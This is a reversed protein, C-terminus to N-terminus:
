GPRISRTRVPTPAWRDTSGPPPDPARCPSPSRGPRRGTWRTGTRKRISPSRLNGTRCHGRPLVDHVQAVPRLLTQRVPPNAAGPPRPEAQVPFSLPLDSYRVILPDYEKAERQFPIVGRRKFGCATVRGDPRLWEQDEMGTFTCAPDGPGGRRGSPPVVARLTRRFPPLHLSIERSRLRGRRRVGIAVRRAVTRGPHRRTRAAAHTARRGGPVDPCSGGSSGAGYGEM